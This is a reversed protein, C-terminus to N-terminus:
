VNDLASGSKEKLSVWTCPLMQPNQATGGAGQLGDRSSRINDPKLRPNASATVSPLYHAAEIIKNKQKGSAAAIMYEITKM